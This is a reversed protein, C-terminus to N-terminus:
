EKGGEIVVLSPGTVAGPTYHHLLHRRYLSHKRPAHLCLPRGAPKTDVWFKGGFQEFLMDRWHEATEQQSVCSVSCSTEKHMTNVYYM